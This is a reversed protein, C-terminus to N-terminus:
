CDHELAMRAGLIYTSTARPVWGACRWVKLMVCAQEDRNVPLISGLILPRNKLFRLRLGQHCPSICNSKNDRHLGGECAFAALAPAFAAYRVCPCGVRSGGKSFCLIRGQQLV